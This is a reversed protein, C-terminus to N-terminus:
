GVEIMDPISASNSFSLRPLITVAWTSSVRVVQLHSRDPTTAKMRVVFRSMSTAHGLSRSIVDSADNSEFEVRAGDEIAQRIETEPPTSADSRTLSSRLLRASIERAWWCLPVRRIVEAAHCALEHDVLALSWLYTALASDYPNEYRVDAELGALSCVRRLLHLRAEQSKIVRRLAEVEPQGRVLKLFTRLDSALNVNASFLDSEIYKFLENLENM